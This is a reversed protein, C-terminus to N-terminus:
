PPPPFFTWRPSVEVDGVDEMEITLYEQSHCRDAVGMLEAVYENAAHRTTVCREEWPAGFMAVRVIIM